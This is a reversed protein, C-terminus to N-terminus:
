HVSKPIEVPEVDAVDDKYILSWALHDEVYTAIEDDEAYNLSRLTTRASGICAVLVTTAARLALSILRFDLYLRLVSLTRIL